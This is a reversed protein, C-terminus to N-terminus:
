VGFMRDQCCIESRDKAEYVQGITYCHAMLNRFQLGFTQFVEMVCYYNEPYEQIIIKTNNLWKIFWILNCDCIYPNSGLNITKLGHVINDPLTNKDPVIDAKTIRIIYIISEYNITILVPVPYV